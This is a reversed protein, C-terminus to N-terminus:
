GGLGLFGLLGRKKKQPPEAEEVLEAYPFVEHLRAEGEAELVRLGLDATDGGTTEVRSITLRPQGMFDERKLYVKRVEDNPISQVPVPASLSEVIIRRNTVGVTRESSDSSGSIQKNGITLSSSSSSSSKSIGFLLEEGEELETFEFGSM